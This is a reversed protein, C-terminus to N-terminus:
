ERPFLGEFNFEAFISKKVLEEARRMIEGELDREFFDMTVVLKRNTSCAGCMTGGAGALSASKTLLIESLYLTNKLYNQYHTFATEDEISVEKVWILSEDQKHKYVAVDGFRKDEETSLLQYSKLEEEYSKQQGAGSNGM